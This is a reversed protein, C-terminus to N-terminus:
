KVFTRKKFGTSAVTLAPIYVRVSGAGRCTLHRVQLTVKHSLNGHPLGVRAHEGLAALHPRKTDVVLALTSSVRTGHVLRPFTLPRVSM